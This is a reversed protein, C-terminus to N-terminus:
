IFVRLPITNGKSVASCTVSLPFVHLHPHLFFAIGICVRAPAEKFDLAIKPIKDDRLFWKLLLFLRADTGFCEAAVLCPCLIFSYHFCM